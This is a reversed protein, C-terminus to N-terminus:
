DLAKNEAIRARTRTYYMAHEAETQSWSRIFLRRNEANRAGSMSRTWHAELVVPFAFIEQARATRTWEIDLVIIQRKIPRSMSKKQHMPLQCYVFCLLAIHPAPTEGPM